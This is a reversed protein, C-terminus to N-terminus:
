GHLSYFCLCVINAIPHCDILSGEVEVRGGQMILRVSVMRVPCEDNVCWAHLSSLLGLCNSLFDAFRASLCCFSCRLVFLSYASGEIIPEYM